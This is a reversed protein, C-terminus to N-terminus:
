FERIEALDDSDEEKKIKEDVEEVDDEDGTKSRKEMSEMNVAAMGTAKGPETPTAAKSLQSSATGANKETAKKMRGLKRQAASPSSMGCETSVKPWDTAGSNNIVSMIFEMDTVQCSGKRM